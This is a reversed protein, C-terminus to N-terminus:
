YKSFGSTLDAGVIRIQATHPPGEYGKMAEIAIIAVRNEYPSKIAGILGADLMFWYDDTSHDESTFVTKTGLKTSRLSVTYLDVRIEGGDINQGMKKASRATYSTGGASFTKNLMVVRSAVIGNEALKESFLKQNKKWLERINGSGRQKGTVLDDEDGQDYKFEWIIKDTRMDQIALYAYYCGCAEDVPESYYAFKGDKSWGIPYFAEPILTPYSNSRDYFKPFNQRVFREIPVERPQAYTQTLAQTAVSFILTLILGTTKATKM